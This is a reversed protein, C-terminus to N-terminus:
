SGYKMPNLPDPGPVVNKISEHHQKMFSPCYLHSLGHM